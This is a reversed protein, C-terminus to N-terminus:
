FGSEVSDQKEKGSNAFLTGWPFYSHYSKPCVVVIEDIEEM